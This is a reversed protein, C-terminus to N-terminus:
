DSPNVTCTSFDTKYGALCITKRPNGRQESVMVTLSVGSRSSLIKFHQKSMIVFDLHVILVNSPNIPLIPMPVLHLIHLM